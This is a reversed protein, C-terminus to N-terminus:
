GATTTVTAPTRGREHALLWRKRWLGSAYGRLSGDSGVVRHCPVVLSVPNRANAHGVARVARPQGLAAALERYTTTSGPPIARLASWVRRQFATGGPDVAIADLARLDGALYARLPGAYREAHRRVVWVGFRARVRALLRARGPAFDLACLASDTAVLTIRGIPSPVEELWLATV